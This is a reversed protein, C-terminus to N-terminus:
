QAVIVVLVWVFIVVPTLVTTLILVCGCGSSVRGPAKKEPAYKEPAPRLLFSVWSAYAPYTFPVISVLFTDLLIAFFVVWTPWGLLHAVKPVSVIAAAIFLLVSMAAWILSERL